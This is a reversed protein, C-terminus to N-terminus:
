ASETSEDSLAEAPLDALSTDRSKQQADVEDELQHDIEQQALYTETYDVESALRDLEGEAGRSRHDLRDIADQTGYLVAIDGAHIVTKGSPAGVWLGARREIGLVVIGEEPLHLEELAIDCVWDEPGVELEAVVWSNSLRLLGVYDKTDLDTFRRLLREIARTLIRDALRSRSVFYVALLGGLLLAIRQWVDNSDDLRGFSLFLSGLVTVIGANGWLVLALIIRRRVPHNVVSESETTTFGAGSFASRAQFKAAEQSLGTLTLMVTAVRTVLLSVIVVIFLTILGIM